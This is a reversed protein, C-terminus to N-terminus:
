GSDKMIKCVLKLRTMNVVQKIRERAMLKAKAPTTRILRTALIAKLLHRKAYTHSVDLM